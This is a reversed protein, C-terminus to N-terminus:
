RGIRYEYCRDAAQHSHPGRSDRTAAVGANLPTADRATMAFCHPGGTDRSYEAGRPPELLIASGTAITGTECRILVSGARRMRALARLHAGADGPGLRRLRGCSLRSNFEDVLV